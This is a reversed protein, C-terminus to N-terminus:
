GFWGVLWFASSLSKCSACTLTEQNNVLRKVRFM